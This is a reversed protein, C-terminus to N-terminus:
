PYNYGGTATNAAAQGAGWDAYCARWASGGGAGKCLAMPYCSTFHYASAAINEAVCNMLRSCEDYGHNDAGDVFSNVINECQYFGYNGCDKALCDSLINCDWFGTRANSYAACNSLQACTIFGDFINSISICNSLNRCGQFGNGGNSFSVCMDVKNCNLFGYETNHVIIKSYTAADTSDGFTGTVGASAAAFVGNNGNIRFNSLNCYSVGDTSIVGATSQARVFVTRYGCGTLDVYSSWDLETYCNYIGELCIITGGGLASLEAAKATIIAAADASTAIIQDTGNQSNTESDSSAFVYTAARTTGSRLGNLVSYLQDKSDNLKTGINKGFGEIANCLEEQVANMFDANITTGPPGNKFQNRGQSDRDVNDSEIRHM